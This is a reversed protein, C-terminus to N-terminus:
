KKSSKTEVTAQGVVLYGGVMGRFELLQEGDIWEFDERNFRFHGNIRFCKHSYTYLENTLQLNIVALLFLGRM